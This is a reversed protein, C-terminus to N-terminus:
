SKRCSDRYERASHADSDHCLANSLDPKWLVIQALRLSRDDISRKLDGSCMSTSIGGTNMTVPLVNRQWTAASYQFNDFKMVPSTLPEVLRSCALTFKWCDACWYADPNNHLYATAPHELM